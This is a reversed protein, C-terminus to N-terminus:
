NVYNWRSCIYKPSSPKLTDLELSGANKKWAELGEQCHLLLAAATNPGAILELVPNAPLITKGDMGMHTHNAVQKNLTNQFTIFAGVIGSLQNVTKLISELCNVLNKGKVMPQLNFFEGDDKNGAIINIGAVSRIPQDSQSTTESGPGMTVLKIGRRAIVRVDDSKIAICGAPGWDMKQSKSGVFGIKGAVLGFNDDVDSKQSIYIRAADDKFMPHVYVTKQGIIPYRKAADKATKSDIEEGGAARIPVACAVVGSGMRGVVIDIAGAQTNASYGSTSTSPRDRGLVIYTNNQGKWVDECPLEIFTPLAEPLQSGGIGDKFRKAAAPSVDTDLFEKVADCLKADMAPKTPNKKKAAM